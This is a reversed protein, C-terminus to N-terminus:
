IRQSLKFVDIFIQKKKPWSYCWKSTINLSSKINSAVVLWLLSNFTYDKTYKLKEPKLILIVYLSIYM